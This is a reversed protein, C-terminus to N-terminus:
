KCNMKCDINFDGIICLELNKKVNWLGTFLLEIYALFELLEESYEVNNEYCPLYVNCVCKNVYKYGMVVAMVRKYLSIELHKVQMDLSKKWLMALGGYPTGVDTMMADEM